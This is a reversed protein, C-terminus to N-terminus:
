QRVETDPSEPATVGPLGEWDAPPAGRLQRRSLGARVVRAAAAVHPAPNFAAAQADPTLYPAAAPSAHLADRFSGGTTAAVRAADAVIAQATPRDVHASLARAASQSFMVSGRGAVNAAMVDAHVQLGHTVEAMTSVAGGALHLLDRLPVWEAHWAGTAREGDHVSAALVTAVLGPARIGASRVLISGIPNQKHPMASSVGRGAASPETLEGIENQALAVVDTAIGACATVVQGLAAALEVVRSRETHWPLADAVGLTRAMSAALAAGHTGWAARTGVPGGLQIAIRHQAGALQVAAADLGGLWGLAKLGFTVPAAIQGLTRGTMLTEAHDAALRAVDSSAMGLRDLIQTLSSAALMMLATDMVDQSTAGVHVSGAAVPDLAGVDRTLWAVLPVVPNGADVAARGLEDCDYSVSGAVDAIVQASAVPILGLRAQGAALAVEFRLMAALFAGDSVGADVEPDGPLAGLLGAYPSSEPHESSSSSPRM